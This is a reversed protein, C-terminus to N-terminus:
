AASWLADMPLAPAPEAQQVRDAFAQAERWSNGDRGNKRANLSWAMSDATALLERVEASQLASLKVGFGHLRLDPRAAKIARLVAAIERPSTNRKCVSGVGVWQGLALRAGYAELHAAYHEPLYGQLVPLVYAAGGVLTRLADYREITLRQHTAIDLGTRRLVFPECMYDQSVAARLEGCRAWRRVAAAYAEPVDRYGGHTTVETFAGSDLMWPGIGPIDSQRSRLRNYSIMVPQGTLHRADAPQHLGVFFTFGNENQSGQNTAESSPHAALPFRV